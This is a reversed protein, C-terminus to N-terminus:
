AQSLHHATTEAWKRVVFAKHEPLIVSVRSYGPPLARVTHAKWVRNVAQSIAGRSLGCAAAFDKQPRGEVLVGYAIRRTQQSIDLKQVATHFQSESLQKKM